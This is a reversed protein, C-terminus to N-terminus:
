NKRVTPSPHGLSVATRDVIERPQLQLELMQFPSLGLDLYIPIRLAHCAALIELGAESTPSVGLLCRVSPDNEVLDALEALPGIVSIGNLTRRNYSLSDDLIGVLHARETSQPDRLKRILAMAEVGAGLIVVRAGDSPTLSGFLHQLVVYGTRAAVVFVTFLLWDIILATRSFGSPGTTLVLVVVSLLTGAFSGSVATLVDSIGAYRWVGRYARCLALSVLKVVLVFPLAVLIGRVAHSPLDGEFRLLHAGILAAPVLVSDLLVQLLQKKFLVTGGILRVHAPVRRTEKYVRLFGLYLGLVLLGTFLLVALLGVVLLPLQAAALAVAGFLATLGYLVFVTSRESLGLSVLRHSSHDRGGQSISRGHLTRAISVLTTDFIPIALVAVPVLLSVVLNPAARNTGQVALAAMSFGLFMSGCDGMFIRAPNTNFILFAVCAGALSLAPALTQPDGISASYGAMALAAIGCVGAALGDMNDLLNVANTIGIVWFLTIPAAVLPPLSAFQVGGFVLIAGVALQGIFKLHPRLHVRDDILGLLFMGAAPLAVAEIFAWNGSVLWGAMAGAFIAVGGLLATPKSHWRDAQPRAVWGLRRAAVIVLPTVIATLLFSVLFATM